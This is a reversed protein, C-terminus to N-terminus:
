VKEHCGGLPVDELAGRAHFFEALHRHGHDDVAGPDGAVDAHLVHVEEQVRLDPELRVQLDVALEGVDDEHGAPPEFVAHGGLRGHETGLDLEPLVVRRAFVVHEEVDLVHVFEKM